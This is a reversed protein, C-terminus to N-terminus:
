EKTLIKRMNIHPCYEDFYEAGEPLYGNQVYFGSARVQASLVISKAGEDRMHAEAAALVADGIHRGRLDRVVAIRGVHYEGSAKGTETQFYRCVAVPRAGDYFVLHRAYADIEDFETKFGQEEMFVAQRVARADDPLVTFMKHTLRIAGPETLM